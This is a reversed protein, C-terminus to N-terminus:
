NWLEVKGKKLYREKKEIENILASRMVKTKRLIKELKEIEDNLCRVQSYLIENDVKIQEETKLM